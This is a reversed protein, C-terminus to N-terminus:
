KSAFSGALKMAAEYGKDKRVAAVQAKQTANLKRVAVMYLGQQKRAASAKRSAPKKAKPAAKAAKAPRGAKRGARRRGSPRIAALGPLLSSIKELPEIRNKLDQLGAILDDVISFLNRAM